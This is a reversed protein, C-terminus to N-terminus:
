ESAAGLYPREVTHHGAGTQRGGSYTLLRQLFGEWTLRQLRSVGLLYGLRDLRTSSRTCTLVELRYGDADGPFARLQTWGSEPHHRLTQERFRLPERLALRTAGLRAAMILGYRDGVQASQPAGTLKWVFALPRPMLEPFSDVAHEVVQLASQRAGSVEIWFHREVVPGLGDALTTPTLPPLRRAPKTLLWGMGGAMLIAVLKTTGPRRRPPQASM